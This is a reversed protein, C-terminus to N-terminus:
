GRFSAGGGDPSCPARSSDGARVARLARATRRGLNGREMPGCPTETIFLIRMPNVANVAATSTELLEAAADFENSAVAIGPCFPVWAYQRARDDEDRDITLEPRSACDRQGRVM